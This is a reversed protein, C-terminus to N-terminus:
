LHDILGPVSYVPIVRAVKMKFVIDVLFDPESPVALVRDMPPNEEIFSQNLKPLSEYEQALHWIDLSQPDTSRFKGTVVNTETRLEAWREQYGFVEDDEDTGQAYIEKNLIAQEGLHAFTPWYFDFRTRRSMWRPIGQQYTQYSRVSAIGIIIGHETFSKTFGDTSAGSVGYASLNAQASDTTTGSTQAVPNVIIGQASGGLYEPRQLRADPSIVGFFARIIETYRTGGRAAQEYFRQLQFAQRLTNITAATAQTLDAGIVKAGDQWATPIFWGTDTKTGDATYGTWANTSGYISAAQVYPLVKDGFASASPDTGIAEYLSVPAVTGLPLEVGPGKQPWPLASTFYDHRKARKLPLLQHELWFDNETVDEGNYVLTEGGDDDWEPYSDILNQDRYWENYIKIYARFPLASVGINKIGTPVAFYDAVSGTAFSQDSGCKVQPILYDVSDSPKKQEGNFNKWHKWVLRNPVFFYHIQFDLDDMIPTKLPSTLRVFVNSRVNFSDGPYVEKVLVPCLYGADMTGRFGKSQPFTSRPLKMQPIKAFHASKM